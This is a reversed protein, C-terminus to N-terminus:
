AALETDFLRDPVFGVEALCPLDQSAAHLVWEVDALAARLVGLDAFAIPDVLFTGAGARRLQVLYARQGYRYGSAREADVAVPGEGAAIAAAAEMLGRETEVVPPVGDAPM